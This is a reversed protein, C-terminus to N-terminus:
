KKARQCTDHPFCPTLKTYYGILQAGPIRMKLGTMTSETELKSTTGEYNVSASATFIEYFGSLKGGASQRVLNNKTTTNVGDFILEVDKALLFANVYEPLIYHPDEKEVKKIFETEKMPGPSVM